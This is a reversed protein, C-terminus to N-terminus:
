RPSPRSVINLVPEGRAFRDINQAFFNIRRRLVGTTAGAVHPSMIVNDLEWFPQTAPIPADDPGAPERYWGDLAAGKIRNDKLAAFLAQEDVVEARAASILNATPKMLSLEREGIIGRTSDNLGVSLLVFDAEQLLRGLGDTRLVFDLGLSRSDAESPLTRTIAIVRMGFAKALTATQRGVHGLGIIGLTRGELEPYLVRMEWSGTRLTRDAKIVERDLAIMAMMVWEAIPKEHEYVNAVVCGVPVAEFDIGDYGGATCQILKLQDAAEGMEKTFSQDLFVAVGPLM